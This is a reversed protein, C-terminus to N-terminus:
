RPMSLPSLIAPEASFALTFHLASIASLLLSFVEFNNSVSTFDPM